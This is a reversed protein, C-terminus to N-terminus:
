PTLATLSDGERRSAALCSALFCPQWNSCNKMVIPLQSMTATRSAGSWADTAFNRSDLQDAAGERGALTAFIREWIGRRAWRVFRNYITKPPGYEPAIRGTVARTCFM